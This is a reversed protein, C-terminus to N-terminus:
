HTFDDYQPTDNQVPHGGYFARTENPKGCNFGACTAVKDLLDDYFQISLVGPWLPQRENGTVQVDNRYSVISHTSRVCSPCVEAKSRVRSATPDPPHM